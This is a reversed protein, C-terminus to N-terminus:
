TTLMQGLADVLTPRPKERRQEAELALSARAPNGDVNEVIEEVKGTPLDAPVSYPEDEAHYHKGDFAFTAMRLEGDVRYAAEGGDAEIAGVAVLTVESGPHADALAGTLAEAGPRQDDGEGVPPLGGAGAPGAPEGAGTSSGSDEAPAPGRDEVVPPYPAKTPEADAPAEKARVSDCWKAAEADDMPVIDGPVWNFDVGSVSTLVEVNVTM